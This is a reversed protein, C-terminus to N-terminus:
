CINKTFWITLHKSPGHYYDSVSKGGLDLSKLWGIDISDCTFRFSFFM